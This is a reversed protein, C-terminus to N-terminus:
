RAKFNSSTLRGSFKQPHDRVEDAIRNAFSPDNKLIAVEADSLKLREATVKFLKDNQFLINMFCKTFKGHRM